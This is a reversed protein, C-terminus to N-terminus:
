KLRVSVDGSSIEEIIGNENRVLLHCDDTIDIVTAPRTTEGQIINIEKGTLYSYEKYRRIYDNDDGNYMCFFRNVVDSIIKENIYEETNGPFIATAIDKIDDPFGLYFLWTYLAHNLKAQAKYLELIADNLADEIDKTYM